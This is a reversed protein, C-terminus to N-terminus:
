NTNSFQKRNRINVVTFSFLYNHQCVISTLCLSGPFIKKKLLVSNVEILIQGPVNLDSHKTQNTKYWESCFNQLVGEFDLKNWMAHCNFHKNQPPTVSKRQKIQSSANEQQTLKLPAQSHVHDTLFNKVWAKPIKLCWDCVKSNVCVTYWSYSDCAASIHECIKIVLYLLSFYVMATNHRSKLINCVNTEQIFLHFIIIWLFVGRTKNATM